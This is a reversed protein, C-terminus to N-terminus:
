AVVEKLFERYMKGIRSWAFAAAKEVRAPRQVVASHRALEIGGAVVAPDTTDLLFEEEGVIWRSRRSDHAVIPLGCAMAEVFVNGFAEELSLHMFVDASRYLAPMQEPVLTFRTFRGPLLRAALDDVAQRLPGDGAVVLHADPIQSVAKIGIEVRKTPALASVMLVILRDGPLGFDQRQQAGPRFRDCDVGNPIMICRWRSKNREYFDPNTCVLGECGFLKYESSNSFAPWDGNQTVFVHPPRFGHLVPRRLALSTFPFSCTLTVDYEAPRYQQLFAPIFTLDEYACEDRLLPISPFSEFNQRTLSPARLFRYPAGTGPEGSGILTVSDGAKALERAISVFAVEAGRAYRHLGPLAFLIRMCTKNTSGRADRHNQYVAADARDIQLKGSKIRECVPL